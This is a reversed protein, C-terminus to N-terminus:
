ETDQDLEDFRLVVVFFKPLGEVFFLFRVLMRPVVHRVHYVSRFYLPVKVHRMVEQSSDLPTHVHIIRNDQMIVAESLSVKVFGVPQNAHELMVWIVVPDLNTCKSILRSCTNQCIYFQHSM